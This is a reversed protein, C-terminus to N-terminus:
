HRALWVAAYTGAILALLGSGIWLPLHAFGAVYWRVAGVCATLGVIGVSAVYVVTVAV